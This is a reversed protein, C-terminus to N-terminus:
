KSRPPLLVEIYGESFSTVEGSKLYTRGILVNVGEMQEDWREMAFALERLFQEVIPGEAPVWTGILHFHDLDPNEIFGVVEGHWIVEVRTTVILRRRPPRGSNFLEYQYSHRLQYLLAPNDEGRLPTPADGLGGANLLWSFGLGSPAVWGAADAGGESRSV